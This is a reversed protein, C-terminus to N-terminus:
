IKEKTGVSKTKIRLHSIWEEATENQERTQKCYQLLLITEYHQSMSKDSLLEFLDLSTKCKGTRQCITQVFRLGKYGLWNM